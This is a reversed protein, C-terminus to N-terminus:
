RAGPGTASDVRAWATFNGATGRRTWTGAPPPGDGSMLAEVVGAAAWRADDKADYDRPRFGPPPIQVAARGTALRVAHGRNSLLPPAGAPGRPFLAAIAGHDARRALAEPAPVPRALLSGALESWAALALVAAAAGLLAVRAGGGPRGRGGALGALLLFPLAPALYRGTPANIATTSTAALVAALQLAAVVAAIRGTGGARVALAVGAGLALGAVLALAAVGDFPAPLIEWRLARALEFAQRGAPIEGPPLAPGLPRGFALLNRALWAAPPLLLAALFPARVRALGPVLFAAAAAAGVLPLGAYRTLAALGLCLGAAAARAPGPPRRAAREDWAPAALALASTVLALYTAESWAMAGLVAVGGTALVLASAVLGPGRGLARAALAHFASAFAAFSLAPVARAALELPLGLAAALAVLGPFLPPWLGLPEPVAPRWFDVVGQVLGRGARLNAAVDLYADSDTTFGALRPALLVALALAAGAVLAGDVPHGREDPSGEPDM